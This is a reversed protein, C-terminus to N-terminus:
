GLQTWGWQWRGKFTRIEEGAKQKAVLEQRKAWVEKLVRPLDALDCQCKHVALVGGALSMAPDDDTADCFVRAPLIDGSTTVLLEISLPALQHPWGEPKGGGLLVRWVRVTAERAVETQDRKRAQM